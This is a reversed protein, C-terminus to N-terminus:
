RVMETSIEISGELKRKASREEVWQGDKQLEKRLREVM